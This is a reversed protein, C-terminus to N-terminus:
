KQNPGATYIFFHYVADVTDHETNSRPCLYGMWHSQYFGPGVPIGVLHISYIHVSCDWWHALMVGEMKLQWRWGVQTSIIIWRGLSQMFCSFQLPFDVQFLQSETTFCHHCHIVYRNNFWFFHMHESVLFQIYDFYKGSRGFHLLIQIWPGIELPNPSSNLLM